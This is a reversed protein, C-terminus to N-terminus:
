PKGMVLHLNWMCRDMKKEDVEWKLSGVEYDSM